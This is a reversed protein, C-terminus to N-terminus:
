SLWGTLKQRFANRKWNRVEFRPLLFSNCGNWVPLQVTSCAQEFGSEQVATISNRNLDGFPYAFSQIPHNLKRELVDKSQQIEQRQVELSHAPLSPHSVTHAGVEVLGGRELEQVESTTLTRFDPRALPSGGAWKLIEDQLTLREEAPLERIATWVSYYFGLRTHPKSEWPNIHRDSEQEGKSYVVASGLHWQRQQGHIILNLTEPLQGPQLLLRELEDWWFERNSDLLGSSIFVTAPVHYKELIDKAIHLNNAYGDDFTVAIARSPVRRSRLAQALQPLSMPNALQQIIELHEAFREPSVSLHWPDFATDAIRHYMLIASKPARILKIQNIVQHLSGIVGKM